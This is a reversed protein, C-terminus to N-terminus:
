PAKRVSLLISNFNVFGIRQSAAKQQASDQEYGPYPAPKPLGVEAHLRCEVAYLDLNMRGQLISKPIPDPLGLAKRRRERTAKQQLFVKTEVKALNSNLDNICSKM